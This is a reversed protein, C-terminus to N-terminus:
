TLHTRAAERIAKATAELAPTQLTWQQWHLTVDVHRGPDINVLEGAAERSGSQEKPLMGWGLGLAIADAFQSSAPVHQRPPALRRRSRQRLYADQLDDSRDFVVVPAAALSVANVGDAFWTAAFAPSAMPRYRMVGLRTSRCGQVAAADSTIAAMVTGSRLLDATRGEDERRVDFYATGSLSALAPLVWTALSDGNVALPITPLNQEAPDVEVRVDRVLSEVQRALRLYAHGAETAETPKTRRVLVRGASHELAKIRQSVASPTLHLASAAADFSGEDVVAALARLQALDIDSM